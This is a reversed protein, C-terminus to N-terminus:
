SLWLVVIYCAIHCTSQLMNYFSCFTCKQLMCKGCALSNAIGEGDLRNHISDISHGNELAEQHEQVELVIGMPQPVSPVEVDRESTM